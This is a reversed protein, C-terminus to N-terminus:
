IKKEWKKRNSLYDIYGLLFIFGISIFPYTIIREITSPSFYDVILMIWAGINMLILYANTNDKIKEWTNM